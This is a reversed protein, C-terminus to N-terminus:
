VEFIEGTNMAQIKKDIRVKTCLFNKEGTHQGTHFVQGTKGHAENLREIYEQDEHKKSDANNFHFGSFTAKIRMTKSFLKVEDIINIIGSHSCGSFLVIEDNEILLMALNHNFKYTIFLNQTKAFLTTNAEPQPFVDQFGELLIFKDDIQTDEDIFYIRSNQGNIVQYPEM